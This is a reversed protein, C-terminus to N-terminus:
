RTGSQKQEIVELVKEPAIDKKLEELSPDRAQQVNQREALESVLVVLRTSEHEALLNVHLSLDARREAMTSMRNQSILVFTSLFIAEVSAFMALIVLSPDFKPFPTGPVNAVIWGGFLLLHLVVFKMSGAFATIADALREPLTRRKMEEAQRDLLAQINRPVLRALGEDPPPSHTPTM